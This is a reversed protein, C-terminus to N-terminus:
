RHDHRKGAFCGHIHVSAPCSSSGDCETEWEDFLAILEGTAENVVLGVIYLVDSIAGYSPIPGGEPSVWKIFQARADVLQDKGMRGVM